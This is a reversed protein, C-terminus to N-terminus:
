LYLASGVELSIEHVRVDVPPTTAVQGDTAGPDFLLGGLQGLGLAYRVGLTTSFVIDHAHEPEALNHSSEYSLGASAGYYHIREEGFDGPRPRPSRDTFLGFGAGLHEALAFRTGARVNWTLERELGLDDNTLAPEVDGELSAWGRGWSYAVGLRARLPTLLQLGPELTGDDEPAFTTAITGDTGATATGVVQTTRYATFLQVGPSRISAGIRWRPAPEWQVGAGLEVGVSKRSLLVSSGFFVDQTDPSRAGGWFQAFGSESRYV